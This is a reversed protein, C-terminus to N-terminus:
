IQMKILDNYARIAASVLGSTYNVAANAKLAAIPATHLDDSQGLAMDLLGSQSAAASSDLQQMAGQLVDAFQLSTNNTGAAQGGAQVQNISSISPLSGMPVIFASM